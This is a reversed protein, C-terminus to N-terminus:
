GRDGGTQQPGTGLRDADAAALRQALTEVAPEAWEEASAPLDEEHGRFLRPLLARLAAPSALRPVPLPGWYEGVTSHEGELPSYTWGEVEDWSLALGHPWVQGDVVPTLTREIGAYDEVTMPKTRRYYFMACLVGTDGRYAYWEDPEYASGPGGDCHAVAEAYVYHPLGTADTLSTDTM